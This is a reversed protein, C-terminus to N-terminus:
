KGIVKHQIDRAHQAKALIDDLMALEEKEKLNDNNTSACPTGSHIYLDLYLFWM